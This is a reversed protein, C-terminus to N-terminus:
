VGPVGLQSGLGLRGQCGHLRLASTTPIATTGNPAQEVVVVVGCDGERAAGVKSASLWGRTNIPPPQPGFQLSEKSASGNENSLAVSKMTAGFVRSLIM